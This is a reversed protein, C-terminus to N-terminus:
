VFGIHQRKSVDFKAIQVWAHGLIVPRVICALWSHVNTNIVEYVNVMQLIPLPSFASSIFFFVGFRFSYVIEVSRGHMRMFSM